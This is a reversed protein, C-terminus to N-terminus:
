ICLTYKIVSGYVIIYDFVNYVAYKLYDSIYYMGMVMLSSHTFILANYM